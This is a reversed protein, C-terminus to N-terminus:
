RSFHSRREDQLVVAFRGPLSIQALEEAFSDARPLKRPESSIPVASGPQEAGIKVSM